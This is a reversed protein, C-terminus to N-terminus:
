RVRSKSMKPKGERRNCYSAIAGSDAAPPLSTVAYALLSQLFNIRRRGAVAELRAAHDTGETAYGVAESRKAFDAPGPPDPTVDAPATGPQV